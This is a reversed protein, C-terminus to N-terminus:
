INITDIHINNNTMIKNTSIEKALLYGLRSTPKILHINSKAQLYKDNWMCIDFYKTEKPLIIVFFNSISDKNIQRLKLPHLRCHIDIDKTIKQCYKGNETVEQIKMCSVLDYLKSNEANALISNLDSNYKENSM